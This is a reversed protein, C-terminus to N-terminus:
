DSEDENKDYLIDIVHSTEIDYNYRKKIFYEVKNELKQSKDFVFPYESLLENLKKKNIKKKKEVYGNVVKFKINNNFKYRENLINMIFEPNPHNEPINFIYRVNDTDEANVLKDKKSLEELLNEENKIVDSDYSYTFTVFRKALVNEIFKQSFKKKDTDYTIHYFGKAESEGHIWRSFSGVYFFKNDIESKIHYHGFYIQGDCSHSLEGVSFVPAKTRTSKTTATDDSPKNYKMVDNVIGHGFIYDYKKDSYLYDKYYDKKDLIYEEPLYLVKMNPLLEEEEVTKIVKFDKSDNMIYDYFIGYQNVEHSDTGYVIRIPCKYSEAIRILSNMFGAAYASVKENLYLKHDFYDGDIIIFDLSKMNTLYKLFIEYLERNLQIPDTAGFHIDSIVVGNYKM